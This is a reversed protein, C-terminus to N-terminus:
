GASLRPRSLPTVEEAHASAEASRDRGEATIHRSAKQGPHRATIGNLSAAAMGRTFSYVLTGDATRLAVMFEGGAYDGNIVRHQKVWQRRKVTNNGSWEKPPCSIRTNMARM